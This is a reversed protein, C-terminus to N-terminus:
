SFTVHERHSQRQGIKKDNIYTGNLSGFDRVRVDPPNIDLLCHYRSIRRHAEDDPLKINADRARGILCTTREEFTFQQGTLNGEIVTLIIQNPM